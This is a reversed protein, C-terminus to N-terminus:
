KIISVEDHKSVVLKVGEIKMVIVEEGKLIESNDISIASWEENDVVVLGMQNEKIDKTVMGKKNLVANLNTSYKFTKDKKVIKRTGIILLIISIVAFIIVQVIISEIFSSLFMLIVAALSFWILTLSPTMAEAIAFIIAVVLWVLKM